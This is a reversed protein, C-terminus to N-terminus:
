DDEGYEEQPKHRPNEKGELEKPSEKLVEGLLWM